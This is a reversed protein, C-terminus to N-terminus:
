ASGGISTHSGAGGDAYRSWTRVGACASRRGVTALRGFRLAFTTFLITTVAAATSANVAVAANATTL